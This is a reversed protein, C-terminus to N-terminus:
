SCRTPVATVAPTSSPVRTAMTAIGSAGVPTTCAMEALPTPAPPVDYVVYLDARIGEVAFVSPSRRQAPGMRGARGLRGGIDCAVLTPARALGTSRDLAVQLRSRQGVATPLASVFLPRSVILLPSPLAPVAPRDHDGGLGRIRARGRFLEGRM